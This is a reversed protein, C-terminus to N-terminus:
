DVEVREENMLRKEATPSENVQSDECKAWDNQVTEMTGKQDNARTGSRRRKVTRENKEARLCCSAQSPKLAKRIM